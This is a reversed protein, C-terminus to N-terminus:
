SFAPNTSLPSPRVPPAIPSIPFTVSANQSPQLQLQIFLSLFSSFLLDLLFPYVPGATSHHNLVLLLGPFVLFENFYGLGMGPYGTWGAGFVAGGTGRVWSGGAYATGCKMGRGGWIIPPIYEM